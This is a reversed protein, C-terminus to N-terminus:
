SHLSPAHYVGLWLSSGSQLHYREAFVHSVRRPKHAHSPPVCVLKAHCPFHSTLVPISTRSSAKATHCATSSLFKAGLFQLGAGIIHSHTSFWALLVIGSSRHGCCSASVLASDRCFRCEAWTAAHRITNALHSCKCKGTLFIKINNSPNSILANLKSFLWCTVLKVM